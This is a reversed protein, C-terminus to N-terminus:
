ALNQLNKDFNKFDIQHSLGKLDAFFFCFNLWKGVVYNENNALRTDGRYFTVRPEPYGTVRTILDLSAGLQLCTLSSPPMAVEAPHEARQSEEYIFLLQPSNYGRGICQLSVIGFIRFLFFIGLFSVARGWEWNRCEQKPSRNVYINGRDTQRNQQLFSTSRDHSYKFWGCICSQSILFSAPCNRKPSYM